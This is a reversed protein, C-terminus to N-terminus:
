LKVTRSFLSCSKLCLVITNFNRLIAFILPVVEKLAGFGVEEETREAKRRPDGPELVKRSKRVM